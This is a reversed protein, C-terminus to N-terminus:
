GTITTWYPVYIATTGNYMKIWGASDRYTTGAMKVTGAGTSVGSFSNTLTLKSAAGSGPDAGIRLSADFTQMESWTRAAALRGFSTEEYSDLKDADLGSGSGDNGAHWVDYSNIQMTTLSGNIYCTDINTGFLQRGSSNTVLTLYASGYSDHTASLQVTSSTGASKSWAGIEVQASVGSFYGTTYSPSANSYLRIKNNSADKHGWLGSHVVGSSAFKYGDNSGWVSPATVSIGAADILTAGAGAYLKGDTSAYWQQVNNNYGAIMGIGGSNWVRLGTYNSGLTGSGQRIEGNTGIQLVGAISANGSADLTIKDTGNGKIALTSSTIEIQNGGSVGYTLTTGDLKAMTTSSNRFELTAGDMFVHEAGPDGIRIAGDSNDWHFVAGTSLSGLTLDGIGLTVGAWGTTAALDTPSGGYLGLMADGSNTRGWLGFEDTWIQAGRSPSRWHFVSSEVFVPADSEAISRLLKEDAAYDLVIVEDWLDSGGDAPISLALPSGTGFFDSALGTKTYSDWIDLDSEKTAYVSVESGNWTLAVFIWEGAAYDINPSTSPGAAYWSWSADTTNKAYISIFDANFYPGVTLSPNANYTGVQMRWKFSTTLSTTDNESLLPRLWGAVTFANRNIVNGFSASGAARISPTTFATSTWSHGDGMDGVAFPTAYPKQELQVGDVLFIDGSSAASTFVIYNNVDSAVTLTRTVSVRQWERTLAVNTQTTDGSERLRISVNKGVAGSNGAKVWASFTWTQGVALTADPITTRYLYPNAQTGVNIAQSYGGFLSDTSQTSSGGSLNYAKFYPSESGTSSTATEFSPDRVYNTTAPAIQLAKGFRGPRYIGNTVTAAVGAHSEPAGTFDLNYPQPGDFHWVGVASPVQIAHRGVLYQGRISGLVDLDFQSDAVRNIGVRGAASVQLVGGAVYLDEDIEVDTGVYLTGAINADGTMDLQYSPSSTGLGLRVLRLYGSADTALISAAAGPNSSTTIAHTHDARALSASSGVGNSSAVTLTVAAATAISHTHSTTTVANTTTASLASPTGLTFTRNASLDGGGTLGDGATLTIAARAITADIAHTHSTTTVANTSTSTLSSPTGLTFTRSAAITGGGTLGDGATLTVGSHAVHTDATGIHTDIQTHSNVGVGSLDSHALQAFAATTASSARLVYGATLGSVTHEAGLGSTTALVHSAPAFTSPKSTLNNWHVSASGSTALETETYYRSDHNHADYASKFAALDVGDVLGGLAIDGEVNLGMVGAGDNAVYLTRAGAASSYIYMDSADNRWTAGSLSTGSITDAVVDQVYLKRWKVGSEGIDYTNAAGAQLHATAVFASGSNLQLRAGSLVQVTNPSGTALLLGPMGVVQALNTFWLGNQSAGGYWLSMTLPAAGSPNVTVNWHPQSSADKGVYQRAQLGTATGPTDYWALAKSDDAPAEGGDIGTYLGVNIGTATLVVGGGAAILRGPSTITFDGAVTGTTATFAGGATVRFPASARGAHTSGAWFAIDSAGNASNLGSTNADTGTGVQVRATNAAGSYLGINTATLGSAAISWGGIAGSTATVQGSLTANSATLNGSADLSTNTAKWVLNSGDWHLGKVLAGGAVTGVRFEYDSGDKGLWLGNNTLPATPLTAGMALFPANNGAGASLLLTNNTGDYLALPVNRLEVATNSARIYRDTVATGAGAFLGYENAQSTIGRLNGFRARVTQTAPHTVWTVVQAYPSNLGYAGDIANVEYFGNGSVGFDLVLADAAITGTASGPTTAHRTFTWTQTGENGGTGDAYATVTGWAWGITLSGAARSYQRLGVFDGSEFVAMNPASPLDRVRLTGTAGAAPLTFATAVMAVSKAVIQGGALAQELDAIFSKAHMEDVFLYRFDAEGADTVRWGTTQSAYSSAQISAGSGMRVLDSTPDLIVDVPSGVTLSNGSPATITPTTVSTSAVMLPLTLKGTADSALISAAAGPDSSSTIAHTHSGSANNATSVSLAGPTTLAISNASVTLGNGAGVNLAVGSSALGDGALESLNRWSPTAGSGTGIYQYASGSAISVQSTSVSILTGAGVTLTVDSGLNGGGTLGNGALVQRSTRVITSPLDADQIAAFAASTAGTARLVHGATLGSVTHDAGLGSASALEHVQAHMMGTDTLAALEAKTAAWPAQSQLLTGTHYRGSLEHAVMGGGAGSGGGAITRVDRLIHPRLRQYLDTISKATDRM